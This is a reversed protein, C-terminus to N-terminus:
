DWPRFRARTRAPAMGSARTGPNVEWEWTAILLPISGRAEIGSEPVLRLTPISQGLLCSRNGPITRQNPESDTNRTTVPSSGADGSIFRYETWQAARRYKATGREVHRGTRRM